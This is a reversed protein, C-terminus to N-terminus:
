GRGVTDTPRIVGALPSAVRAAVACCHALRLTGILTSTKVNAGQFYQNKFRSVPLVYLCLSM